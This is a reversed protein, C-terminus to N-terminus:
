REKAVIILPRSQAYAYGERKVRVEVAVYSGELAVPRIASDVSKPPAVQFPETRPLCIALLDFLDDVESFPHQHQGAVERATLPACVLDLALRRDNKGEDVPLDGAPLDIGVPAFAEFGHPQLL